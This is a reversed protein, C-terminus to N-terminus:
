ATATPAPAGCLRRPPRPGPTALVHVLDVTVGRAKHITAAYGHDLHAYDKLDFAVTRGANLRVTMRDRPRGLFRENKIGLGRDNRLFM